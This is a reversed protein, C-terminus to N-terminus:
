MIACKRASFVLLAAANIVSPLTDMLHRPLGALTISGYDLRTLVINRLWLHVILNIEIISSRPALVACSV